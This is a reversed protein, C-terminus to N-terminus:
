EAENRLLHLILSICLFSDDDDDDDDHDGPSPLCITRFHHLDAPNKLRWLAIDNDYTVENYRPHRMMHTVEHVRVVTDSVQGILDSWLECQGIM